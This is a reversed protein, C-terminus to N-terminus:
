CGAEFAGVFADFDEFTLFGDADFDAAPEGAEFAGVFADFDEFTLFGDANFDAPCCSSYLLPVYDSRVTSCDNFVDCSYFASDDLTASAIVLTDTVATANAGSDIPDSGKYWQYYLNGYGTAEVHFTATGTPCNSAAQPQATIRVGTNQWQAFQATLYRQLM